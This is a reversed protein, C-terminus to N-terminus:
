ERSYEFYSDSDSHTETMKYQHAEAYLSLWTRFSKMSTKYLNPNKTYFHKYIDRKNYRLGVRFNADAYHIFKLPALMRLAREAINVQPLIIGNKLYLSICKAMFVYFKEWEENSWGDFLRQGYRQVPNYTSNFMDALVFDVKRRKSSEDDNEITYNSTIVIKPSKGYEIVAKDQYKKETVARESILPYLKSFDFKNPVDDIVLIRTAYSIKSLAFRDNLHFRKGDEITALRIKQFAQTLLSKGTGGNAGEGRYPDYFILAKPNSPDKYRHLIYGILTRMSLFNHESIQPDWHSSIDKVFRYFMGEELEMNATELNFNIIDTEFFHGCVDDHLVKEIGDEKIILLSDNFFIYSIDEEDELENIEIKPLLQMNDLRIILKDLILLNKVQKKEMPDLFDSQSEIYDLCYQRIDLINVARIIRGEIRILINGTVFDSKLIGFGNEKLFGLLTDPDLKISGSVMTWFKTM